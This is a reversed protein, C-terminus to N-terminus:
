FSDGVFWPHVWPASPPPTPPYITPSPLACSRAAGTDHVSGAVNPVQLHYSNNGAVCAGSSASGGSAGGTTAGAPFHSAAAAVAAAYIANQQHQQIHQHHHENLSSFPSPPPIYSSNRNVSAAVTETNPYSMANYSAAVALASPSYYDLKENQYRCASYLKKNGDHHHHHHHYNSPPVPPSPFQTLQALNHAKEATELALSTRVSPYQASFDSLINRWSNENGSSDTTGRNGTM